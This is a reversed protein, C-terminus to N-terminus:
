DGSIYDSESSIIIHDKKTVGARQITIFAHLNGMNGLDTETLIQTKSQYGEKLFQNYKENASAKAEKWAHLIQESNDSLETASSGKEVYLPINVTSKFHDKLSHVRFDDQEGFISSFTNQFSFGKFDIDIPEARAFVDFTYPYCNEDIKGEKNEAIRDSLFYNFNEYIIHDKQEVDNVKLYNGQIPNKFVDGEGALTVMESITEKDENTLYIRSRMQSLFNEMMDPGVKAKFAAKNQTAIFLKVNTSRSINPFNSDTYCGGSLDTTILEQYEDCIFFFHERQIRTSVSEYEYYMALSEQKKAKVEPSDGPKIDFTHPDISAVGKLLEKFRTGRNFFDNSLELAKKAWHVANATTTLFENEDKGSAIIKKVKTLYEGTKWEENLEAQIEECFGIFEDQVDLITKGGRRTQDTLYEIPVAEPSTELVLTEPYKKRFYETLQIQRKSFRIQRKVAEENILTKVFLLILKGANGYDDMNLDFAVIKNWLEGVEITNTGLGTLFPRLASSSYNAMIRDINAQIGQKTEEVMSKWKSCIQIMAEISETTLIDAIREPEIEHTMFIDAMCKAFLEGDNDLVVLEYIFALSWVKIFRQRMYEEGARTRSFLYAIHAFNKIWNLASDSWFDKEGKSGMQSQMSELFSLLKQPTIGTLLDISYQGEDEFAGIIAFTNQLYCKEAFPKLDKWLQSKIDMIACSIVTPNFPLPKYADLYGEGIAKRTLSDTRVDYIENFAEENALYMSKLQFISQAFPIIASRSKGTGTAGFLITNQSLDLTSQYIESGKRYAGIVGKKEMLGSSRGYKILPSKRDYGTGRINGSSLNRKYSDIQDAQNEHKYEEHTDQIYPIKALRFANFYSNRIFAFGVALSLFFATLYGNTFIWGWSHYNYRQANAYIEKAYQKANEQADVKRARAENIDWVDVRYKPLITPDKVVAEEFKAMLKREVSAPQYGYTLQPKYLVALVAFSLLAVFLGSKFIIYFSRPSIFSALYNAVPKGNFWRGAIIPSVDMNDPTRAKHHWFNNEKVPFENNMFEVREQLNRNLGVVKEIVADPFIADLLALTKSWTHKHVAAIWKGILADLVYNVSTFMKTAIEFKKSRIAFGKEEEEQVIAKHNMMGKIYLGTLWIFVISVLGGAALYEKIFVLIDWASFANYQNLNELM